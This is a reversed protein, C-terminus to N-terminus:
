GAASVEELADQFDDFGVAIDWANGTETRVWLMVENGRVTMDLLKSAEGDVSVSPITTREAPRDMLATLLPESPVVIKDIDRYSEGDRSHLRVGTPIADIDLTREIGTTQSLGYITM